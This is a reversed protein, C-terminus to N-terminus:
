TLEKIINPRFAQLFGNIGGLLFKADYGKSSLYSAAMVARNTGPCICVITKEKDIEDLRDPLKNLPINKAIKVEYGKLEFAFRIDLLECKGEKLLKITEDADIRSLVNQKMDFNRLYEEM